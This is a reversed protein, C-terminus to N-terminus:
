LRLINLFNSSFSFMDPTVCNFDETCFPMLHILKVNFAKHKMDNSNLFEM